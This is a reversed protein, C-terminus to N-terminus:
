PCEKNNKNYSLHVWLADSTIDACTKLPGYFCLKCTPDMVAHLSCHEVKYKIGQICVSKSVLDKIENSIGYPNTCGFLFLSILIIIYKM